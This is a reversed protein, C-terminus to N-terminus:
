GERRRSRRRMTSGNRDVMLRTRPLFPHPAHRSSSELSTLRLVMREGVQTFAGAAVAGALPPGLLEILVPGPYDSNVAYITRAYIGGGTPPLPISPEPPIPSTAPAATEPKAAPYRIRVIQPPKSWTQLLM